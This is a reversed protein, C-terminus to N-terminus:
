TYEEHIILGCNDNILKVNMGNPSLMVESVSKGFYWYKTYIVKNYGDTVSFSILQINKMTQFSDIFSKSFQYRSKIRLTKLKPLLSAINIFFDEKLEPYNIDLENLQKCHKFCEVSLILNSNLENNLLEIKLKKVAKFESFSAFFRDTIAFRTIFKLDLLKNCKQGILSLCDIPEEVKTTFLNLTLEKLNEFRSICDFCTKLEDATMHNLSIDISKMTQSYKSSLIVMNCIDGSHIHINSSHELKALFENDKPFHDFNDTLRVSKLNPCLRFIQEFHENDGFLNLEELRHGYSQFFLLVNEDNYDPYYTLSKVRPCYQGILSLVESKDLVDLDIDVRRINPCKKLLSELHQGVSQRKNDDLYNLINLQIYEIDINFHKLYVLRRWQKSVCELRIKDEFTLYQLVQETLDDGFRDMSNKLYGNTNCM